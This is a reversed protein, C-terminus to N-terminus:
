KRLPQSTKIRVTLTTQGPGNRQLLEVRDVFQLGLRLSELRATADAKSLQHKEAIWDVLPERREKVYDRLAVLSLRMLPTEDGEPTKSPDVSFRKMVEPANALVLYGDKLAFSPKFGPPFRKDNVFYKVEVKGQFATRLALRDTNKSNYDLVALNALFNTADWLTQDAPTASKGPRVRLAWLAQPIWEKDHTTPALICLGIDPGLNPTLERVLKGMPPPLAGQEVADRLAKRADDPLFEGITELLAMVDVRAAVALLANDPFASWLESPKAAEVFFKRLRPSLAEPKARIAVSIDLDQHPAVILAAGDLAKWNTAFTKLFAGDPGEFLKVRQLLDADFARPNLWLALLGKDAGLQRFQHALPPSKSDAPPAQKDLDLVRRLMAEQGSIALVSGRQWYYYPAQKREVRHYYKVGNHEREELKLLDGSKKQAANFRDILTTLMAANRARTLFLGQEEEPKGPPGPRYAFVVADGLIDDRLQPWGVGLHEKMQKEMDRLKNLEPAQSLMQGVVSKQFQSAFPSDALAASHSRLDNVLLCFGVDEPVLRLVEDRPTAAQNQAALHPAESSSSVALTATVALWFCVRLLKTPSM